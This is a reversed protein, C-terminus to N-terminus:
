VFYVTVVIRLEMGETKDVNPFTSYVLPTTNDNLFLGLESLQEQALNDAITFEIDARDSYITYGDVTGQFVVNSLAFGSTCPSIGKNGTGVKWNTITSLFADLPRDFYKGGDIWWALSSDTMDFRLKRQQWHNTVKTVIQEPTTHCQEDEITIPNLLAIYHPVTNAPRLSEVDTTISVLQEDKWLYPSSSAGYLTDLVVELGFHPSKYYTDDFGPPNEPGDGVFWYEVKVFTTYDNTYFDYINTKFGSLYAKIVLSEYTGKIKYWDIAQAVQQRLGDLTTNEDRVLTLGILSALYEIYVEDISYPDQLKPLDDIDSLWAGVYRGAQYIFDELLTDPSHFKEPILPMLDIFKIYDILDEIEAIITIDRIESGIYYGAAPEVETESEIVVDGYPVGDFYWGDDLNWLSVKALDFNAVGSGEVEIIVSIDVPTAISSEVSLFEWAGSGSHYDSSSNGDTDSITIKAKSASSCKVWCSFRITTNFLFNIDTLDQYLSGTPTGTIKVSKAGAFADTTDELITGGTTSWGFPLGGSWLYFDINTLRQTDFNQAFLNSVEGM